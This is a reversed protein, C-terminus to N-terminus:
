ETPPIRIEQGLELRSPDALNNYAQLEEITFGYQRGIGYLSDGARVIHIREESAAATATAPVATEAFGAVPITLEQGLELRNPDALENAAILDEISVGYVLAIRYLSDGAQVIYTQEETNGTPAATPQTEPATTTNPDATPEIPQTGTLVEIPAISGEITASPDVLPPNFEATPQVVPNLPVELPETDQAPIQCAVLAITLLCLIVWRLLQRHMM